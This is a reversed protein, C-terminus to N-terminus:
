AQKGEMVQEPQNGQANAELVAKHDAEAKQMTAVAANRIGVYLSEVSDFPLKGLGQLILNVQPFNLTLTIPVESPKFQDM